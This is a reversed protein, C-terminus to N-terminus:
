GGARGARLSAIEELVPLLATKTIEPNEAPGFHGLGPVVEFHCGEIAEALRKTSGDIALADYEGTILYVAVVSTDIQSAQEATLDHDIAYYYADGENLGPAGQSYVWITERCYPVPSTPAVNAHMLAMLWQNSVQPNSGRKHAHEVVERLSPDFGLAGNLAIVARFEEPHYYALDPALMGGVSCGMFVPRDLELKRSIAIVADMLFDRTLRYRKEWWAQSTPPLSRGHFPLDYSIMRYHKQYDPDELVHRWQRGDGGATHQLVMPIDGNGAEEYYVRYQVGQITVYMYRGVADDFDRELPPLLTAPPLDNRVKRLLDLFQQVPWFYPGVATIHDGEVSFGGEGIVFLPNQFGPPPVESMLKDWSGAPGAIAIDSPGLEGVGELLDDSRRFGVPNGDDVDLVYAEEGMNLILKGTWFRAATLFSDDRRAAALVQDPDFALM